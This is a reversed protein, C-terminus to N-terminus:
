GGRGVLGQFQTIADWVGLGVGSALQELTALSHALFVLVSGDIPDAQWWGGYAGPWGVSGVGGGCILVDAKAPDMVVAVGLGFGHGAAFPRQGLLEARARQSETLRNTTMLAVTEPRLVQVGEVCGGEVFLRAFTLYDDATSWLGQGGSEFTMTGPREPLTHGGPATELASLRGAEDFGYLRARRGRREPAVSFGTDRMGLPDFIRRQLVAGLPAGEVRAILFGLLDTSHGYHFDTGPQDVLPLRALAALWEDPAAANDIQGGLAGYAGALPGHLFEGYTLGSRHTLLDEFTIPREAAETEELPGSPSRMVRMRAFEPAWRAIPEDLGLRGEEVLQLAAVSTVAKTMSAIRFVTDREVPLGAAKDRWGVAAHQALEGRRWALAVAGALEGAKVLAGMAGAADDEKGTVQRGDEGWAM